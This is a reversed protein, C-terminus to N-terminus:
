GLPLWWVMLAMLDALLTSKNGSLCCREFGMKAM